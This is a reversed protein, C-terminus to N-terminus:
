KNFWEKRWGKMMEIEKTQTAVVDNGLKILEPRKTEALLQEAMRVAGEHHVIMDDLFAEDLADGTKGALGGMMGDMAGHMDPYKNDIKPEGHYRDGTMGFGRDYPRVGVSYGLLLGAILSGGGIIWINNKINM